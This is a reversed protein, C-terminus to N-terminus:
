SSTTASNAACARVSSLASARCMDSVSHGSTFAATRHASAAPCGDASDSADYRAIPTSCYPESTSLTRVDGHRRAVLPDGLRCGRLLQEVERGREREDVEVEHVVERHPGDGDGIVPRRLEGGVVQGPEGARIVVAEGIREHVEPEGFAERELEVVTPLEGGHALHAPDREPVCRGGVRSAGERVELPRHAAVELRAVPHVRVVRPEHHRERRGVVPELGLLRGPPRGLAGVVGARGLVRVLERM